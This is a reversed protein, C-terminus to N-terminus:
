STASTRTLDPIKSRAFRALRLPPEAQTLAGNIRHRSLRSLVHCRADGAVLRYRSREQWSKVHGVQQQWGSGVSLLTRRHCCGRDGVSDVLTLLLLCLARIHKLEEIDSPWLAETDLVHVSRLFCSLLPRKVLALHRCHDFFCKM